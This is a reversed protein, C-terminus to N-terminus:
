LPLRNHLWEIMAFGKFWPLILNVTGHSRSHVVMPGREIVNM